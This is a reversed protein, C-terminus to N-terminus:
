RRKRGLILEQLQQQGHQKAKRAYVTVAENIVQPAEPIGLEKIFKAAGKRASYVKKSQENKTMQLQTM